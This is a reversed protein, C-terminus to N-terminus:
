VADDPDHRERMRAVEQAYRERTDADDVPQLRAAPVTRAATPDAANPSLQKVFVREGDPTAYELTILGKDTYERHVFWVEREEDMGPTRPGRNYTKLVM